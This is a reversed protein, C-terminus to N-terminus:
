VLTVKCCRGFLTGLHLLNSLGRKSVSRLAHWTILILPLHESQFCEMKIFNWYFGAQFGHMAIYLLLDNSVKHQSLFEGIYQSLVVVPGGVLTMHAM